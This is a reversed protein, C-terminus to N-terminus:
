VRYISPYYHWSAVICYNWCFWVIILNMGRMDNCQLTLTSCRFTYHTMSHQSHVCMRLELIWGDTLLMISEEQQFNWNWKLPRNMLWLRVRRGLFRHTQTTYNKKKKTWVFSKVLISNYTLTSSKMKFLEVM